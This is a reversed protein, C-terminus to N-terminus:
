NRLNGTEREFSFSLPADYWACIAGIRLLEAEGGMGLSGLMMVKCSLNENDTLKIM